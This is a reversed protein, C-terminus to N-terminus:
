VGREERITRMQRSVAEVEVKAEVGSGTRSRNLAIGRDAEIEGDM